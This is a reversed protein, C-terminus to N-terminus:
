WREPVDGGEFGRLTNVLAPGLREVAYGGELVFLTPRAVQGVQAGLRGYDPTKLRFRAIPDAEHTDLGLSVLLYDPDFDAVAALGQALVSEYAAWGTGLPLPLNLTLGRGAGRGIEGAYGWFHPYAEAPDAHISVFLVDSREYFIAQTGNGHHYDVDLIAVRTTGGALLHQAAIAANNLYCYGGMQAPGAHHGPPRCLALAAPEGQLLLDAATLACNAAARAASWTGATVAASLDFAYYGLRAEIDNPRTGGGPGSPFCYPLAAPSDPYATQWAPWLTALFDLYDVAHIAQLPALDYRQPPLPAPYGAAELAALIAEVRAPTEYSPVAKGGLFEPRDAHARHSPSHVIKM